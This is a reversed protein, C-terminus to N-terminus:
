VIAGSMSPEVSGLSATNRLIVSFISLMSIGSVSLYYRLSGSSSRLAQQILVSFKGYFSMCASSFIVPTSELLKGLCVQFIFITSISSGLNLGASILFVRWFRREYTVLTSSNTLRMLEISYSGTSKDNVSYSKSALIVFSFLISLSSYKVVSLFM